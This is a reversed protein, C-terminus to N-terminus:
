RSKTSVGAPEALGELLKRPRQIVKRITGQPPQVRKTAEVMVAGGALAWPLKPGVREFLAGARLWFRHSSPPQYLAARHREPLFQHAKLQAELQRTTYPHGYGFPTADSRSWMGARNPVIFLAKGGPGLVALM